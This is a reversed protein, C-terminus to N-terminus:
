WAAAAWDGGVRRAAGGCRGTTGAAGGDGCRRWATRRRRRPRGCHREVAKAGGGGPGGGLKGESRRRGWASRECRKKTGESCAAMSGGLRGVETSRERRRSGDGQRQEAAEGSRAAEARAGVRTWSGKDREEGVEAAGAGNGKGRGEEGILVGRGKLSGRASEVPTEDPGVGVGEGAGEEVKPGVLTLDAGGGYAYDVGGGKM